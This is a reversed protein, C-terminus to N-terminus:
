PPRWMLTAPTTGRELVTVSVRTPARGIWTPELQPSWCHGLADLPTAEGARFEDARLDHLAGDTSSALLEYEFCHTGPLPERWPVTRDNMFVKLLRIELGGGQTTDAVQQWPRAQGGCGCLVVVAVTLISAWARHM